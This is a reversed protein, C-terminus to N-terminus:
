LHRFSETTKCIELILFVITNQVIESLHMTYLQLFTKCISELVVNPPGREPTQLSRSPLLKHFNGPLCIEILQDFSRMLAFIGSTMKM